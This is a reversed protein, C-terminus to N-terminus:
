VARHTSHQAAFSEIPYSDRSDYRKSHTAEKPFERKVVQTWLTVLVSVPSM